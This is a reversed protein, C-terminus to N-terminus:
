RSGSSNCARGEMQKSSSTIPQIQAADNQRGETKGQRERKGTPTYLPFSLILMYPTNWEAPGARKRGATQMIAPQWSVAGYFLLFHIQQGLPNILVAVKEHMKFKIGMVVPIQIRFNGHLPIFHANSQISMGSGSSGPLHRIRVTVPKNDWPGLSRIGHINGQASYIQSPPLFM